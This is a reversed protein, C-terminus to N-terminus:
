PLHSVTDFIPSLDPPGAMEDFVDRLRIVGATDVV